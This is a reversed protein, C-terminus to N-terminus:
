TLKLATKLHPALNRLGLKTLTQYAENFSLHGEFRLRKSAEKVIKASYFLMSAYTALYHNLSSKFEDYAEVVARTLGDHSAAIQQTTSAVCCIPEDLLDLYDVIRKYGRREMLTAYPEWLSAGGGECISSCIEEPSSKYNFSVDREEVGHLRLTALAFSEMSSLATSALKLEKVDEVQRVYSPTILGAGGRAAAAIFFLSQTSAQYVLQTVLPAIAIELRGKVLDKVLGLGSGYVKLGVTFGLERLRNRLPIIFPYELAKIFGIRVRGRLTSPAKEALWVRAERQTRRRVVLGEAELRSVTFSVTSKSFGTMKAIDAQSAGDEGFAKLVKIVAERCDVAM